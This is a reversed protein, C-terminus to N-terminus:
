RCRLPAFLGMDVHLRELLRAAVEADDGGPGVGAARVGHLPAQRALCRPESQTGESGAAELGQARATWDATEV